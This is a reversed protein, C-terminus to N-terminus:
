HISLSASDMALFLLRSQEEDLELSDNEVQQPEAHTAARVYDCFEVYQEKPHAQAIMFGMDVFAKAVSQRPVGEILLADKLNDLAAMGAELDGSIKGASSDAFSEILRTQTNKDRYVKQKSELYQDDAGVFALRKASFEHTFDLFNALRIKRARGDKESLDRLGDRPDDYDITHVALAMMLYPLDSQMTSFDIKEHCFGSIKQFARKQEGDGSIQAWSLKKM